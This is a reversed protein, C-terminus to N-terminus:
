TRPLGAGFAAGAVRLASKKKKPGENKLIAFGSFGGVVSSGPYTVPNPLRRFYEGDFKRVPNPILTEQLRAGGGSFGVATASRLV